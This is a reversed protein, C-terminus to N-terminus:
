LPAPLFGAAHPHCVLCSTAYHPAGSGDARYFRTRTHCTECLGTGPASASAFSGDARGTLNTFLLPRDAGGPTHIVDRMLRINDSGHPDHCGTCAIPMNPPVHEAVRAASHCDACAAIARHGPGPEPKVEAHCSSCAGQFKEHHLSPKALQAAEATHCIGCSADTIVPEFGAAHDHCRTCDGTFHPEGRGDARYFRTRRHCTECLGRGPRDPDVFPAGSPAVEDHFDIPRLRGRARIATRVLHANTSGHVDHCKLCTRRLRADGLPHDPPPHTEVPTAHHTTCSTPIARHRRGFVGPRRDEHCTVCDISAAHGGALVALAAQTDHCRLCIDAPGTDQAWASGSGAVGITVCSVLLLGRWTRM